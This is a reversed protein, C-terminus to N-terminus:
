KGRAKEVLEKLTMKRHNVIESLEFEEIIKRSIVSVILDKGAPGLIQELGRTFKEPDSTVSKETLGYNRALLEFVARRVSEGLTKDITSSLIESVIEDTNMKVSEGM